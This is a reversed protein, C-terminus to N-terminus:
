SPQSRSSPGPGEGRQRRPSLGAQPAATPSQAVNGTVSLLAGWATSVPNTALAATDDISRRARQVEDQSFHLIAAIVRLLSEKKTSEDAGTLMFQLMAGKLYTLKHEADDAEVLESKRLLSRKLEDIEAQQSQVQVVPCLSVTARAHM